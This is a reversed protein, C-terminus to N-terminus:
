VLTFVFILNSGDSVYEILQSGPLWLRFRSGEKSYSIGINPGPSIAVGNPYLDNFYGIGGYIKTLQNVNAPVTIASLSWLEASSVNVRVERSWITKDSYRIRNVTAGNYAIKSPSKGGYNFTM